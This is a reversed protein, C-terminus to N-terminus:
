NFSSQTGLDRNHYAGGGGIAGVLHLESRRLASRSPSIPSGRTTLGSLTEGPIWTHLRRAFVSSLSCVANEEVSDVNLSFVPHHQARFPATSVQASGCDSYERRPTNDACAEYEACVHPSSIQGQSGKIPWGHTHVGGSQKIACASCAQRSIIRM